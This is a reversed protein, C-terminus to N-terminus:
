KPGAATPAAQAAAPDTDLREPHSLLDRVAAVFRGVQYADALRHDARVFLPMVHTEAFGGGRAVVKSEVPGLTLNLSDSHDPFRTPKYSRIPPAGAFSLDNVMAAGGRLEDVRGFAPLAFRRDLFGHLRLAQRLWFPSLRRLRGLDRDRSGTGRGAQLLRQWLEQGIQELSKRNASSVLLLDIQNNGRNLFATRIGIDCFEFIRRGVIRANMAPFQALALATARILAHTTTILVKGSRNRERLFAQLADADIETGWVMTPDVHSAKPAHLYFRNYLPVEHDPVPEDFLIWKM